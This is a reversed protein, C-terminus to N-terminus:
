RAPRRVDHQAVALGLVNGAAVHSKVLPCEGLDAAEIGDELTSTVVHIYAPSQLLRIVFDTETGRGKNPMIAAGSEALVQSLLVTVAFGLRQERALM